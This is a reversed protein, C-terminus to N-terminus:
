SRAACFVVENDNTKNPEHLNNNQTILQVYFFIVSLSFNIDYDVEISQNQTAKNQSSEHYSYWYLNRLM